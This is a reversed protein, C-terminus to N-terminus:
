SVAGNTSVEGLVDIINDPLRLSMEVFYEAFRLSEVGINGNDTLRGFFMDTSEGLYTSPVQNVFWFPNLMDQTSLHEARISEIREMEKEYQEAASAADRQIDKIQDEVALVVKSQLGNAIRLMVAPDLKLLQTNSLKNNIGVVTAVVALVLAVDIGLKRVVFQFTFDLAVYVLVTKMVWFTLATWGLQYAAYAAKIAAGGTFVAAVIAAVVLVVRFWGRQYWRTKVRQYTTAIVGLGRFLIKERQSFPFFNNVIMMSVPVIVNSDKDDESLSGEVNKRYVAYWSTPNQLIVEEYTDETIQHRYAISRKSVEVEVPKGLLYVIQTNTFTGFASDYTGVEGISGSVVSKSIGDVRLSMNLLKDKINLTNKDTTDGGIIDHYWDFFHFLYRLDLKHKSNLKIFFGVLGQKIYRIDPNDHFEDSFQEYDIGLYSFLKKTSEYGPNSPVSLKQSNSRMHMFPMFQAADDGTATDSVASDLLPYLGQGPKYTFYEGEVKAQYFDDQIDGVEAHFVYCQKVPDQSILDDDEEWIYGRKIGDPLRESLEVDAEPAPHTSQWPNYRDRAPTDWASYYKMDEPEFVNPDTADGSDEPVTNQVALLYHVYCSYEYDNISNTSESYGHKEELDVWTQHILNLPGFEAYEIDAGQGYMNELVQILTARVASYSSLSSTPLGYYYNGRAAYNYLRKLKMPPGNIIGEVLNESLNIDSLVAELVAGRITDPLQKDDEIMQQFIASTYTKKKSSFLGM